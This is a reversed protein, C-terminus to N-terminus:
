MTKNCSSFCGHAKGNVLEYILPFFASFLQAVHFGAGTGSPRTEKQKSGASFFATNKHGEM